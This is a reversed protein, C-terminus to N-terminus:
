WDAKLKLYYPTASLDYVQQLKYGLLKMQRLGEYWVMAAENEQKLDSKEDDTLSKDKNQRPLYCHHAEDNIVVIRKGKVGKELIRSLM